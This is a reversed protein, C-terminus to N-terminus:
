KRRARHMTLLMMGTDGLNKRGGYNQFAAAGPQKDDGVFRVVLWEAAENPPFVELGVGTIGSFPIRLTTAKGKFSLADAEVTFTGDEFGKMKLLSGLGAKMRSGVTSMNPPVRYYTNDFAAPVPPSPAADDGSEAAPMRANIGKELSVKRTFELDKESVQMSGSFWALINDFREDAYVAVSLPYDSGPTISSQPCQFLKRSQPELKKVIRCANAGPPGAADFMVWVPKKKGKNRVGYSQAMGDAFVMLGGPQLEIDKPRQGAAPLPNAVVLLALGAVAVAKRLMM